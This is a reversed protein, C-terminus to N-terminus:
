GTEARRVRRCVLCSRYGKSYSVNDDTFVHGHDCHTRGVMRHTGHRVSDLSNESYTGWKLNDARNNTKDGDIHCAILDPAFGPVFVMAVLRHLRRWVRQGDRYIGIRQYGNSSLSPILM